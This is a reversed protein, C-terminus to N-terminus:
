ETSGALYAATRVAFDRDWSYHSRRDKETCEKLWFDPHDCWMGIADRAYKQAKEENSM